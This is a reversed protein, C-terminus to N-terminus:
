PCTFRDPSGLETVAPANFVVFVLLPLLVPPLFLPLPLLLSPPHRCTPPDLM